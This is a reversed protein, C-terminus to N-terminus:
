FNYPSVHRQGYVSQLRVTCSFESMYFLGCMSVLKLVTEFSNQKLKMEIHLCNLKWCVTLFVVVAHEENKEM